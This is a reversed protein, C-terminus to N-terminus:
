ERLLFVEEGKGSERGRNALPSVGARQRNLLERQWVVIWRELLSMPEAM